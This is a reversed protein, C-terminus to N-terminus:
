YHPVQKRLQSTRKSIHGMSRMPFVECPRRLSVVDSLNLIAYICYYCDILASALSGHVLISLNVHNLKSFLACVKNKGCDNILGGLNWKHVKSSKRSGSM